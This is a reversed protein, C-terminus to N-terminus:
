SLPRTAPAVASHNTYRNTLGMSQCTRTGTNRVQHVRPPPLKQAHAAHPICTRTMQMEDDHQQQRTTHM